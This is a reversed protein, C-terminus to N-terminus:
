QLRNQHTTQRPFPVSLPEQLRLFSIRAYRPASLILQLLQHLHHAEIDTIMKYHAGTAFPVGSSKIGSAAHTARQVFHLANTERVFSRKLSNPMIVRPTWVISRPPDGSTCRLGKTLGNLGNLYLVDWNLM